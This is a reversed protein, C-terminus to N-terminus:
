QFGLGATVEGANVANTLAVAWNWLAYQWAMADTEAQAQQQFQQQTQQQMQQPTMHQQQQQQVTHLVAPGVQLALESVAAAGERQKWSSFDQRVTPMIVSVAGACIEPSLGLQVAEGMMGVVAPLLQQWTSPPGSSSNNNESSSSSSSSNNVHHWSVVIAGEEGAAPALASNDSGECSIMLCYSLAKLLAPLVIDHNQLMSSHFEKSRQSSAPKSACFPEANLASMGLVDLVRAHHAPVKSSSSSNRSSTDTAYTAAASSNSLCRVVAAADVAARGQQQQHLLGILLAAAAIMLQHLEPTKLLQQVHPQDRVAAHAYPGVTIAQALNLAASMLNHVRVCQEDENIGGGGSSAAPSGQARLIALMLKVAPLISARWAADDFLANCTAISLESMTLSTWPLLLASALKLGNNLQLAAQQQQQQRAPQAPQQQRQSSGFFGSRMGKAPRHQQQHQQPPEHQQQKFTQQLEDAAATCAKGLQELLGAAASLGPAHCAQFIFVLGHAHHM